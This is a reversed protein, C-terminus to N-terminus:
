ACHKRSLPQWHQKCTIRATAKFIAETAFRTTDKSIHPTATQLPTFTPRKEPSYLRRRPIHLVTTLLLEHAADLGWCPLSLCIKSSFKTKGIWIWCPHTHPSKIRSSSPTTFFFSSLSAAFWFLSPRQWPLVTVNIDTPSWLRKQGM